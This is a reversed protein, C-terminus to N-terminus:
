LWVPFGSGNGKLSSEVAAHLSCIRRPIRKPKAHAQGGVAMRCFLISSSRFVGTTSSIGTDGSLSLSWSAVSQRGEDGGEEM